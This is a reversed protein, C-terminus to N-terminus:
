LTANLLNNSYIIDIHIIFTAIVLYLIVAFLRRSILPFSLFLPCLHPVFILSSALFLPPVLHPLLMISVSGALFLPPVLHPVLIIPTSHGMMVVLTMMMM